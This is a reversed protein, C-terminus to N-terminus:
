NVSVMAGKVEAKATGNVTANAGTLKAAAVGKVEATVAEMKVESGEAKFYTSDDKKIVAKSSGQIDANTADVKVNTAKITITSPEIKIESSGVKLSIKTDSTVDINGAGDLVIKHGGGDEITISGDGDNICVKASTKRATLCRRSGDPATRGHFLSGMVFPRDPNNYVFNVLVRDGKQPIAVFGGGRAGDKGGGADPTMVWVWHTHESDSQWQFKVQVRGMKDPDENDHVWAYQPEALPNIIHNVPIGRVWSSLAEFTNYYSGSQSFHHTISTVLFSGYDDRVANNDETRAVKVQAIKGMTLNPNTCTGSLVVLSAAIAEKTKKVYYDAENTSEVPQHLPLEFKESFLSRSVNVAHQPYPDLGDIDPGNTNIQEDSTSVYAFGATEIPSVRVKLKINSLNIGSVIEVSELNPPTGYVLETGTYYFLDGYTASLRNIFHFNSEKYRCVYKLSSTISARVM